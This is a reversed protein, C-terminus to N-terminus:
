PSCLAAAGASPRPFICRGPARPCPASPEPWGPESPTSYEYVGRGLYTAFVAVRDDHIETHAWYQWFPAFYRDPKRGTGPDIAGAKLQPSVVAASATLLTNDVAEFGAPLPDELVMYHLDHPAVVTLRVQVYDGVSASEVQRDSPKLTQTDVAFYQRGVVIGKNLAAIKDAPLFYNLYASYYLKGDGPGRTIAVEASTTQLMDRIAVRLERSQDVNNKDVSGDGIPKGNVTVQYTYSGSLEGTAAMFETLALVSWATVQTTEWHGEKRAVMLWRVANALLANKPDARSIAMIALATTRTNTNMGWFDPLKEEWHAGTASTIAASTLESLVAQAQRQGTKKLAM